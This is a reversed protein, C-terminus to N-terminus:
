LLDGHAHGLEFARLEFGCGFALSAGAAVPVGGQQLLLRVPCRARPTTPFCALIKTASLFVRAGLLRFLYQRRVPKGTRESPVRGTM